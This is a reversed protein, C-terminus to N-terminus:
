LEAIFNHRIDTLNINVDQIFVEFFDFWKQSIKIPLVTRVFM